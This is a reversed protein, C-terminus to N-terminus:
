FPKSIDVNPTYNLEIGRHIVRCNGGNQLVPVLAMAVAGVGHQHLENRCILHRLAQVRQLLHSNIADSAPAVHAAEDAMKFLAPACRRGVRM